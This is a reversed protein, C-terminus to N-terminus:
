KVEYDKEFEEQDITFIVDDDALEDAAAIPADEGRDPVLDTEGLVGEAGPPQFRPEEPLRLTLQIEGTRPNQDITDVTYEYQSDKHRVKLGKRIVLNGKKDLVDAEELAENIRQLYAKRLLTVLGRNGLQDSM